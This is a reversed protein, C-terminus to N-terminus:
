RYHRTNTRRYVDNSAPVAVHVPVAQRMHTGPQNIAPKVIGHLEAVLTRPSTRISALFRRFRRRLM